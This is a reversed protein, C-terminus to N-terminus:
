VWICGAELLAAAGGLGAGSISRDSPDPAPCAAPSGGSPHKTLGGSGGGMWGLVWRLWLGPLPVLVHFIEVCGGPRRM